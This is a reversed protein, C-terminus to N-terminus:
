RVQISDRNPRTPPVRSEFVPKDKGTVGITAIQLNAPAVVEFTFSDKQHIEPAEGECARIVGPHDLSYSFVIKGGNDKFTVLYPGSKDTGTFPANGPRLVESGPIINFQSGNYNIKFARHAHELDNFFDARFDGRTSDLKALEKDINQVKNGNDRDACSFLIICTLYIFSYKM